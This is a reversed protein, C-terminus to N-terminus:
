DHIDDEWQYDGRENSPEYGISRIAERLASYSDAPADATGIKRDYLLYNKRVDAPSINPMVVNAGALIGLERGGPRITGLATTAPLLVKPLMLRVISLLFLTDELTGPKQDRFPTGHHPLFPGIGIMQPNLDKMFLLDEALNEATQFPSGVMMGCGTQYGISILDKLCRVRNELTLEPPHLRAYHAPSATEHRLLYRDAGADFFRQYSERSKEGISLTIACDPFERRIASVIEAVREDTFYPDEGGQLVFTRFGAQEGWRCCTLIEDLGLRYRVANRNSRRIGCYLCDNKCYNTFEILGRFYIKKGFRKVATERALSAAFERDEPTYTRILAALEALPPTQGEKVALIRSQNQTLAADAGTQFFYFGEAPFASPCFFGRLLFVPYKGSRRRAGSKEM